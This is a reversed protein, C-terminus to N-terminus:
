YPEKFKLGRRLEEESKRIFEGSKKIRKKIREIAENAEIAKKIRLLMFIFEDWSMDGKERELIKKLEVSIPISTYKTM